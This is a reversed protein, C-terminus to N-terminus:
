LCDWDISPVAFVPGDSCVHFYPRIERGAAKVACGQCAGLGCAMAAELSVQCPIQRAAAEFAVTKLMPRPGCAFLSISGTEHRDRGLYTQLLGTVLGAYGESGDDTALSVDGPEGLVDEPRIIDRVTRFGAMLRYRSRAMTQALFLLPAVGIGGAVLLATGKGEPREFGRGLPGLVSLQEGPRKEAMISTGKGKVCYLILLAEGRTGSISFPRRLLPDNGPRVQIMVFQGPKAAGAMAASRLGMLWTDTTLQRHFLIESFEQLVM